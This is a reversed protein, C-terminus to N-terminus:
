KTEYDKIKENMNKVAEIRSNGYGSWNGYDVFNIWAKWCDLKELGYSYTKKEGVVEKLLKEAQIM